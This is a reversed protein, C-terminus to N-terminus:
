APGADIADNNTLRTQRTGDANIVYIEFNGDRYSVFAIRGSFKSTLPSAIAVPAVPITPAAALTSRTPTATPTPGAGLGDVVSNPSPTAPDACGAAVFISLLILLWEKM